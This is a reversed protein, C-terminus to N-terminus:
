KVKVKFSEEEYDQGPTAVIKDGIKLGSKVEYAFDSHAGVEIKTKTVTETAEDYLYVYSGDKELVISEIPVTPIDSYTGTKIEVSAEFGAIINEDPDDVSVVCEVGAGKETLSSLGSVGAMSGVSDLMSSNSSGTATPAISIIEGTYKGYATTINAKMGVSVKHVDYEGLSITVAMKDLNEVKIGTELASTQEGSKVSCETVIGDISSVWGAQLQQQSKKLKDLASKTANMAQKQANLTTGSAGISFLERQAYLASLQLEASALTANDSNAISSGIAKWNVARVASEVMQVAVGSEVILKTEDILGSKIADSMAKGAADAIAQPSYDGSDLEKAIRNMVERTIANTTTIDDSLKSITDSLDQLAKVAKELDSSIDSTDPINIPSDNKPTNSGNAKITTSTSTIIRRKTTSAKTTSAKKSTTKKTTTAAAKKKQQKAVTKELKKIQKNVSKLKAANERQSNLASYYANSSDSYSAQLSAIESDLEDTSFTALKDGKKVTDGVKVYVDKCQAVTGAKFEKSAGSSIKGTANIDEVIEGTKIESLSVAVVKNNASVAFVAGAILAIVLVICIPIIIKKKNSKKITAM